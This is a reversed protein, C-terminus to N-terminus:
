VQRGLYTQYQQVVTYMNSVETTTLRSSMGAMAYNRSVLGNPANLVNRCGIYVKLNARTGNNLATQTVGVQSGNKFIRLDTSNFRSGVFFGSADTSTTSVTGNTTSNFSCGYSNASTRLTLADRSTTSVACGMDVESTSPTAASTRSYLFMCENNTAFSTLAIAHTNGYGTLGDTTIGNADHTVAGYFVIRMAADTDLPNKLNYKHTIATGGVFPYLAFIKTWVGIAKLNVVLYNIALKETANTIGTANIFAIADLDYKPMLLFINSNYGM